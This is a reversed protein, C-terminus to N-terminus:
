YLPGHLIDQSQGLEIFRFGTQFYPSRFGIGVCVQIHIAANTSNTQISSM